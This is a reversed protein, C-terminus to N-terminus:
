TSLTATKQLHTVYVFYADVNSSVAEEFQETKLFTAARNKLFVAKDKSDEPVIGIAKTYCQIADDWQQKKFAENGADKLKMADNLAQAPDVVEEIRGM